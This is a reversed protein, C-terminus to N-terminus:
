KSSTQKQIEDEVLSIGEKSLEFKEVTVKDPRSDGPCNVVHEGACNRDMVILTQAHNATNLINNYSAIIGNPADLGSVGTIQVAPATNVQFSGSKVMQNGDPIQMMFEQPRNYTLPTSAAVTGKYTYTLEFPNKFDSPSTVKFEVLTTFPNVKIYSNTLNQFTVKGDYTCSTDERSLSGTLTAVVNQGQIKYPIAESEINKPCYNSLKMQFVSEVDAQSATAFFLSSAFLLKYTM